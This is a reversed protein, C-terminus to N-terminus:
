KEINYRLDASESEGSTAELTWKSGLKYRLMFVDLADGLGAGYRLYLRPSLYKGLVVSTEGVNEGAVVDLEELGIRNGISKALLKAGMETAAQGVVAQADVDDNLSDISRGTTLYALIEPTAMVPNSFLHIDPDRLTGRINVGVVSEAVQRQARIELGPDNLPGGSFVLKGTEIEFNQGLAVYEGDVAQLVGTASDLEGLASNVTIAGLAKGKFGFADIEADEVSVHVASVLRWDETQPAPTAAGVIVQDPSANVRQDVDIRTIRATPVVVDGAIRLERESFSVNLRPSVDVRLGPLDAARFREGKVQIDGQFSRLSFEGTLDVSGDGSQASGLLRLRDEEANATLVIDEVKVGLDEIKLSGETLKAQGALAPARPTGGSGSIRATGNVEGDLVLTAPLNEFADALSFKDVEVAVIWPSQDSWNGQLCIRQSSNVLCLRSARAEHRALTLDVPSHALSWAGTATTGTTLSHLQGRWSQKAYGGALALTATADDGDLNVSMEHRDLSGTVEGKLNGYRTGALTVDHMALTIHSGRRKRLDLAVESLLSETAHQQYKLGAATITAALQAGGGTDTLKGTATISGASDAILDNLKPVEARWQLDIAEDVRGSIQLTSEGAYLTFSPISVSDDHVSIEGRGALSATGWAPWYSKPNIGTATFTATLGDAKIGIRGTASLEGELLSVSLRGLEVRNQDGQGAIDIRNDPINPGSVRGNADFRYRSPTGSANVSGSARFNSALALWAFEQLEASAEFALQEGAWDVTGHLDAGHQRGRERLALRDLVVRSDDASADLDFLLEASPLGKATVSGTALISEGTGSAQATVHLPASIGVTELASSQPAFLALSAQWQPDNSLDSVTAFLQGRVPGSLSQSLQLNALPGNVALDGAFAPTNSLTMRWHLGIAVEHPARTGMRGDGDAVFHPSALKLDSVAIVGDDVAASLSLGTVPVIKGAVTQLAIDSLGISEIAFNARLEAASTSNPIDSKLNSAALMQVHIGQGRVDDVILKGTLWSLPQWDFYFQAVKITMTPAGIELGSMEIPGVLVGHVQEAEIAFPLLPRVRELVFRLGSESCSLYIVAGFLPAILIGAAILFRRM